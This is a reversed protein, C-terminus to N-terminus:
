GGEGGIGKMPNANAAGYSQFFVTISSVALCFIGAGVVIWLNLGSSIRYSYGSLWRQTLYWTIPAAIVFAILVYSLFAKELRRLAEFSTSGFV